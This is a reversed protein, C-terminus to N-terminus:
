RGHYSNGHHKAPESLSQLVGLRLDLTEARTARSLGSRIRAGERFRLGSQGQSLHDSISVTTPRQDPRQAGVPGPRLAVAHAGSAIDRGLATTHIGPEM